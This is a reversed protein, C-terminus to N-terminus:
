QSDADPLVVQPLQLAAPPANPMTPLMEPPFKLKANPPTISHAGHADGSAVGPIASQPGCCPSWDVQGYGLMAGAAIALDVKAIQYDVIAQVEQTRADGLNTLAVLVDTVTQRGAEQLKV